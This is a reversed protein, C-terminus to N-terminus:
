ERVRKGIANLYVANLANAERQITYAEEIRNRAERGMSGLADADLFLAQRLREALKDADRCPVIWGDIGERIISAWAGAQTAIVPVGSAMAELCTLGFGENHSACVVLSMRRFWGPIEDFPLVGLWQFRGDLGAAAIRAKMERVFPEQKQTTQGIIVATVDPFDPLVRCMAEVYERIGKQERVRGFIGVGRAGPLGGCAWEEATSRGPRYREQDIGHPIIADPQRQLYSAAMPSTCLLTDMRRYLFRTLWSHPRQATSTFILHLPCRFLHRLLLGAIMENNRRAHFVRRGGGPLPRRCVSVLERWSLHPVAETFACGATAISISERQHPVLQAITSTIGSFHRTINPIIVEIDASPTNNM